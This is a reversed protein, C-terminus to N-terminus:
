FKTKIVHKVFYLLICKAERELAISPGNKQTTFLPVVAGYVHATTGARNMVSVVGYKHM